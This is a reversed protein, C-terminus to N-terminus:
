LAEWQSRTIGEDLFGTHCDACMGAQYALGGLWVTVTRIPDDSEVGGCVHGCCDCTKDADGIARLMPTCRGCVVLGPKWAACFVPEPRRPDPNHMCVRASGAAWRLFTDLLGLRIWDPVALRPVALVPKGECREVASIGARTAADLQDAFGVPAARRIEALLEPTLRSLIEDFAIAAGPKIKSM